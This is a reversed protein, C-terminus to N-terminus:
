KKYWAQLIKVTNMLYNITHTSHYVSNYSHLVWIMGEKATPRQEESKYM